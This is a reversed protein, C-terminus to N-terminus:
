CCWYVRARPACPARTRTSATTRTHADHIRRTSRCPLALRWEAGPPLPFQGQNALRFREGARLTHSGTRHDLPNWYITIKSEQALAAIAQDFTDDDIRQEEYQVHRRLKSDLDVNHELNEMILREAVVRLRIEPDDFAM